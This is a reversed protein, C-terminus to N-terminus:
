HASDEGHFRLHAVLPQHDSARTLDFNVHVTGPAVDRVFIYDIAGTWGDDTRAGKPGSPFTMREEGTLGMVQAVDVLRARLGALEDSAAQANFDGAVVLPGRLAWQDIIALLAQVQAQRENHDLGFHTAIVALM